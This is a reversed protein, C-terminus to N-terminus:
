KDDSSITMDEDENVTKVGVVGNLKYEVQLKKTIGSAPDGFNDNSAKIKLQDGNIQDRVIATVDTKDGDPLDGYLAKTIVLKSPKTSIIMTEAEDVTRSHAVGDITYDVKLKKTVGSAPDDFNDNSADVTLANDKVMTKVKETVDTKGGDPLDGYIAKVIVLTGAPKTTQAHSVQVFALISLIVTLISLTRRM